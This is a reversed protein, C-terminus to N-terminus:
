VLQSAIPSKFFPPKVIMVSCQVQRLVREATNGLLFGTLGGRAVSGIVLLNPKVKDIAALIVEDALGSELIIDDPHELPKISQKALSQLIAHAKQKISAQHKEYQKIYGENFEAIYPCHWAGVIYLRSNEIEAMASAFYIMNENMTNESEQAAPDAAVLIRHSESEDNPNVLLTPVPCHRMLRLDVSGFFLNSAKANAEKVVLDFNGKVAIKIVQTV